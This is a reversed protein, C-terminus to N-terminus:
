NSVYNPALNNAAAPDSGLRYPFLKKLELFRAEYLHWSLWALTLSLGTAVVIFLIQGPLQSGMFAPITRASFVKQALAFGIPHHFIYLAYSYRGFSTLSRHSFIREFASRKPSTIGISVVAGFLLTLLTHGITRVVMDHQYLGRRWLIIASLAAAASGAVPWAWRSLSGLGNPGRAMAALFSGVALADMRAPTLVFAAVPYGWFLLGGRIAISSVICALCIVILERRGFLFVIVPWILYFQEEVALSWFHQVAYFRPWDDFGIQVNVLYSWYWGQSKLLSHFTSSLPVFRPLVLFLLVLVGYYLPFIRLSRRIYFNRFFNNSGKTDLLIGTILFGSLVFFLDVGCWGIYSIAFFVEDVFLFPRMGGHYSFHFLMVLLIAIGRIGDLAPIRSGLNLPRVSPEKALM